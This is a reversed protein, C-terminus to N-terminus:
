GGGDGYDDGDGDGDGDGGGEDGDAPEEGWEGKEFEAMIEAELDDDDVDGDDEAYPPIPENGGDLEDEGTIEPTPLSSESKASNPTKVTKLGTTRVRALRQKKALNSEEDTEDDDTEDRPHKRGRVSLNSRQSRDSAGVSRNSILEKLLNSKQKRSTVSGTDSDDDESGSAMFDELEADASGWDFKQLGDIPSKPDELEDPIVGDPDQDEDNIRM